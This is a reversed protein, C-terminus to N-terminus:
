KKSSPTHLLALAEGAHLKTSFRLKRYDEYTTPVFVRPHDDDVLEPLPELIEDPGLLFSAISVRTNAEKCQVRHKVNCFRGNSWVTAMDGLNVLLTGPCPDIPTFEDSKNMVELGGVDEDDQLITLFGSDTHMPGGTTGVSQPTFHYKNIRARCTWNEFGINESKVGLSEALRNGIGVILGHVAEAYRMITERQHPSADLQSCFYDVGHRSTMDHLGLAEYLPIKASPAVYGGGAIVDINRRKIEEPLDLLSKALAKMESMLTAPLVDHYNLLRFCGWEECASILKSSQNPFDQLDIVPINCKTAM